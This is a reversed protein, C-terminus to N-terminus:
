DKACVYVCIDVYMCVCVCLYVCVYMCVYMCVYGVFLGLAWVRKIKRVQDGYFWVFFLANEWADLISLNGGHVLRMIARSASSTAHELHSLRRRYTHIYTQIYTHKCSFCSLYCTQPFLTPAQIYTHIYTHKYTHVYTHICYAHSKHKHIDKPHCTHMYSRMNTHMCSRMNTHMCSRMNAHVCSRMNTHAHKHACIFAHYVCTQATNYTYNQSAPDHCVRSICWYGSEYMILLFWRRIVYKPWSDLASSFFCDEYKLDIDARMYQHSSVMTNDFLNRRMIILTLTQESRPRICKNERYAHQSYFVCAHETVRWTHICTMATKRPHDLDRSKAEKCTECRNWSSKM